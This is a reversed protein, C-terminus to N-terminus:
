RRIRMNKGRSMRIIRKTMEGRVRREREKRRKNPSNLIRKLRQNCLIYM